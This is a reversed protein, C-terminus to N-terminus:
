INASFGQTELMFRFVYQREDHMDKDDDRYILPAVYSHSHNEESLLILNESSFVLKFPKAEFSNGDEVADNGVPIQSLWRSFRTEEKKFSASKRSKPEIEKILNIM